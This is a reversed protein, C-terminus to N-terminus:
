ASDQAQKKVQYYDRLYKRLNQKARHILSEVSSITNHMVESIEEYSLEEINHLMFATKQNEPLRDIARFLVADREQNEFAIGPHLTGAPQRAFKDNENDFPSLIFAFRKKRKKARLFNLCTTITIRYIWTSFKSRGKFKAISEYIKIFVEQTIDEADQHNHLLGLATHFVRSQNVEVLEKFAMEDGSQVRLLLEKETM